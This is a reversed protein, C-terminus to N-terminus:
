GRDRERPGDEHQAEISVFLARIDSIGGAAVWVAFIAFALMSLGLVVAWFTAWATM